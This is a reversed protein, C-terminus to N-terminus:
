FFILKINKKGYINKDAQQNKSIIGQGSSKHGPSKM